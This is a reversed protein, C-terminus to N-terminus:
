SASRNKKHPKSQVTEEKGNDDCGGFFKITEEYQLDRILASNISSITGSRNPVPVEGGAAFYITGDCSLRLSIDEGNFFVSTFPNVTDKTISLVLPDSKRGLEDKLVINFTKVGDYGRTDLGIGTRGRKDIRGIEEERSGYDVIVITGAKGKIEVDTYDRSAKLPSLPNVLIPADPASAAKEIVIPLSEPCGNNAVDKVTIDFLKFGDDGSTDLTVDVRILEGEIANDSSIEVGSDKGNIFIRSGSEGEIEVSVNDDATISPATILMPLFPAMTDRIITVVLAESTNNFSDKLTINFTIPGEPGMMELPVSVIGSLPIQKYSTVGNIFVTSGVEGSIKLSVADEATAVPPQTILIPALPAIIDKEIAIALSKSENDADDKLTIYFMKVGNIGSTDLSVTTSDSAQMVIGSDLDNIFIKTGAEGKLEIDVSNATTITPLVGRSQPQEPPTADKTISVTLATSENNFDDKLSIVFTKVGDAGSTDLGINVRGSEPIIINNYINNVFIKSGAEGNVEM